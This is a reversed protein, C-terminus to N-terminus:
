AEGELILRERIIEADAAAAPDLNGYIVLADLILNPRLNQRSGAKVRVQLRDDGMTEWSVILPRIDTEILRGKSHKGVVLPQDERLCGTAAALGAAVLTYDALSVRSMLSETATEVMEASRVHLGEPLAVNLRDMIEDATCTENLTLDLFDGETIMGVSIPLAFVLHPRPNFGQSWQVPLGARRVSREFTRMMDLHGLWVAPGTRTFCLRCTQTPQEALVSEEGLVIRAVIM